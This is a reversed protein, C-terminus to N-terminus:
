PLLRSHDVALRSPLNPCGQPAPYSGGGEKEWFPFTAKISSQQFTNPWGHQREKEGGKRSCLPPHQTGGRRRFGSVHGIQRRYKHTGVLKIDNSLYTIYVTSFVSTPEDRKADTPLHTSVYYHYNFKNARRERPELLGRLPKYLISQIVTYLFIYDCM